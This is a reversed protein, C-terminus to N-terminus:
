ALGEAVGRCSDRMVGDEMGQADLTNMVVFDCRVQPVPQQAQELRGVLDAPLTQAPPPAGAARRAPRRAPVKVRM